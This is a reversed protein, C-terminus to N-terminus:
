IKMKVIGPQCENLGPLERIYFSQLIVIILSCPLCDKKVSLGMKLQSYSYLKGKLAYQMREAQAETGTKAVICLDESYSIRCSSSSRINDRIESVTQTIM